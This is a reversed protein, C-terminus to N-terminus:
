VDLQEHFQTVAHVSLELGRAFEFPRMLLERCENVARM